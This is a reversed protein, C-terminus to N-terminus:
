SIYQGMLQKFVRPQTMQSSQQATDSFQSLVFVKGFSASTSSCAKRGPQSPMLFSCGTNSAWHSQLASIDCYSTLSQESAQSLIGQLGLYGRKSSRGTLAPKVLMFYGSRIEDAVWNRPPYVSCESFPQNDQRLQSLTAPLLHSLIQM